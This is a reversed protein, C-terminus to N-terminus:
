LGGKDLGLRDVHIKKYAWDRILVGAIATVPPVRFPPEDVVSPKENDKTTTGDAIDQFKKNDTNSLYSGKPHELISVVEERTYWRADVLENDLDLRIPQSSDARAYFGVMLNAPFPWPQASHYVPNTVKVGAEEWMERVVADEFTEGPEMFGALASYFKGPYKKGRGLLIKDGTEDIAIMIVVPDTRPHAFNQLGRATPCPKKGTNDAWPLLTSCSIKWGGWQSYTPSGCGPCFKNRRNWDVMSRAENFLDLSTQDLKLGMMVGRAEAWSLALSDKELSLLADADDEAESVDIAFYPAGTLNAVAKEPDTFDSSPLANAVSLTDLLGLFVVRVGRHRVAETFSIQEEATLLGGEDKGQGFYPAPGLFPQLQSTSLTAISPRANPDSAPVSVLQNHGKSVLWRAKPSLAVANLFSPSSRLWSLRNLPSGYDKQAMITITTPKSIHKDIESSSFIDRFVAFTKEDIIAFVVRRFSRRFRSDLLEIWLKAVTAVNNRFVGTGFSGLIVDEIGNQKFICLLRGMREKMVEEIAEEIDSENASRQRVVGANVACSTLVDATAPAAWTGDDDRMFTVSHTFVMAHTYFKSKTVHTHTHYFRQGAPSMLSSYLNSSRALSEEQASAGSLFGGGPRTASAFNLVGVKGRPERACFRLGQITSGRYLLIDANSVSENSSSSKWASALEDEPPYYKTAEEVGGLDPVIHKTGNTDTYSGAAVAALTDKAIQARVPHPM